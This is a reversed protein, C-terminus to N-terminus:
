LSFLWGIRKGYEAGTLFEASLPGQIIAVTSGLKVLLFFALVEFLVDFIM